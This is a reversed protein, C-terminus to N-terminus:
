VEGRELDIKIKLDQIGNKVIDSWYLSDANEYMTLDEIQERGLYNLWNNEQVMDELKKIDKLIRKQIAQVVLAERELQM